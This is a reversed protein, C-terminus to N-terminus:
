PPSRCTPSSRRASTATCSSGPGNASACWSRGTSASARASASSTRGADGPRRRDGRGSRGARHLAPQVRVARRGGDGPHDGPHAPRRLRVHAQAIAAIVREQGRGLLVAAPGEVVGSVNRRWAQYGLFFGTPVYVVNEMAAKNLRGIPPRRRTSTRPRRVLGGGGERGRAREALRVLRRRRQRPDRHLGGSQRLRRRCALHPVHGLRGARAAVEARPAPRGHGLRHRRFRREHRDAEAPRGHRRGPRPSRSTRRWWAPSRSAPTAARRWCSRPARRHRAQGQPHRRGGRHLAAHRAHLYGPLPKWLSDDDGVLARM